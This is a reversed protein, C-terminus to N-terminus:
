PNLFFTCLDSNTFSNSCPYFNSHTGPYCGTYTITGGNDITLSNLVIDTLLTNPVTIYQTGALTTKASTVPAGFPNVQDVGTWSTAVADLYECGSNNYYVSLAYTGAPPNTLYWIEHYDRTAPQVMSVLRSLSLSNYTVKTLAAETCVNRNKITVVLINNNGGNSVTHQWTTPSTRGVTRITTSTDFVIPSAAYVETSFSLISLYFIILLLKLFINYNGKHM